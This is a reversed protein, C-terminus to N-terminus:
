KPKDMINDYTETGEMYGKAETKLDDCSILGSLFAKLFTTDTVVIPKAERLKHTVKKVNSYFLPFNEMSTCRLTFFDSWHHMIRAM